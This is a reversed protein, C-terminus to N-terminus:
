NVFRVGDVTVNGDGSLDIKEGLYTPEPRFVSTLFDKVRAAFERVDRSGQGVYTRIDASLGAAELEMADAIFMARHLHYKQTVLLVSEAGFIEKARYVSEYTSFGAHDMFIDESPVGKDILFSRMTNVEDYDDQGHDGSVIIKPAAGKEYADLATLLRDELMDSPIVTFGNETEIRRVSCGFVLICDYSANTELKDNLNESSYIRPETSSKVYVNIFVSFVIGIVALISIIMATAKLARIRIFDKIHLTM